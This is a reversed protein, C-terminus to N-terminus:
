KPAAPVIRELIEIAKPTLQGGKRGPSGTLLERKRAQWLHGKVTPLSKALEDALKHVPKEQGRNVLALYASSLLAFYEDTLGETM